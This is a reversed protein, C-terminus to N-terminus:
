TVLLDTVPWPRERVEVFEFPFKDVADLIRPKYQVLYYGTRVSKKFGSINV